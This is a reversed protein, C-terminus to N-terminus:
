REFMGVWSGPFPVEAWERTKVTLRELEGDHAEASTTTTTTTTTTTPHPPPPPPYILNWAAAEKISPDEEGEGDVEVARTDLEAAGSHPPPTPPPTPSAEPMEIESRWGSSM